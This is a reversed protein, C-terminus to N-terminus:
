QSFSCFDNWDSQWLDIILVVRGTHPHKVVFLISFWASSYAACCFCKWFPLIFFLVSHTGRVSTVCHARSLVRTIRGCSGACQLLCSFHLPHPSQLKIIERSLDVDLLLSFFVAFLMKSWLWSVVRDACSEPSDPLSLDASFRHQRELLVCFLSHCLLLTVVWHVFWLWFIFFLFIHSSGNYMLSSLPAPPPPPLLIDWCLGSGLFRKMRNM